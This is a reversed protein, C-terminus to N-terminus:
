KAPQVDVVKDPLELNITESFGRRAQEDIALANPRDNTALGSEFTPPMDAREIRQM